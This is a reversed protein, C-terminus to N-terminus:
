SASARDRRRQERPGDVLAHEARLHARHDLQGVLGADVGDDVLLELDATLDEGGPEHRDDLGLDVDVAGLLGLGLLQQLGRM